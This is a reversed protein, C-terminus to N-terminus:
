VNAGKKTISFFIEYMDLFTGGSAIDTVKIDLGNTAMASTIVIDRFHICHGADLQKNTDCNGESVINAGELLQMVLMNGTVNLELFFNVRIDIIDGETFKFNTADHVTTATTKGIVDVNDSISVPLTVAKLDLSAGVLTYDSNKYIWSEIVAAEPAEGTPSSGIFEDLYAQVQVLTGVNAGAENQIDSFLASYFANTNLDKILITEQGTPGLISYDTDKAPIVVPILVAGGEIVVNTGSLYVKM